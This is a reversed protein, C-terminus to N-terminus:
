CWKALSRFLAKPDLPKQLYGDFLKSDQLAQEDEATGLAVIPVTTEKSTSRIKGAIESADAFPLETDLLILDFKGSAMAQNIDDQNEATIVNCNKKQLLATILKQNIKSDEALLV